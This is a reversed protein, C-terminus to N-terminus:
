SKRFSWIFIFGFKWSGALGLLDRTRGANLGTQCLAAFHRSNRAATHSGGGALGCEPHFKSDRNNEPAEPFLGARSTWRSSLCSFGTVAQHIVRTSVNHGDCDAAGMSKCCGRPYAHGTTKEMVLNWGASYDDPENYGRYNKKLTVYNHELAVDRVIPFFLFVVTAATLELVLIIVMTLFCFLLTGRSEKMAGYWGALGLLITVCGMVLYLLSLYLLYASSLGLVRTLTAGGYRVGVGLSLLVMGSVAVFGDLFSLLKKLTSYPTHSEAM